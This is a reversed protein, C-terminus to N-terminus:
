SFSNDSNYISRSIFNQALLIFRTYIYVYLSVCTIQLGRISISVLFFKPVVTDRIFQGFYFYIQRLCYTRCFRSHPSFVLLLPSIKSKEGSKFRDNRICVDDLAFLPDRLHRKWLDNFSMFFLLCSLNRRKSRSHITLLSVHLYLWALRM